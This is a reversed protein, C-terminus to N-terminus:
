GKVQGGPYGSKGADEKPTQFDVFDKMWDEDNVSSGEKVLNSEEGAGRKGVSDGENGLTDEIDIEGQRDSAYERRLVVIDRIEAM